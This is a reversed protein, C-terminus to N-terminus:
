VGSEYFFRSRTQKLSALLPSGMERRQISALSRERRTATSIECLMRSLSLVTPNSLDGREQGRSERCVQFHRHELTPCRRVNERCIRRACIRRSQSASAVSLPPPTPLSLSEPLLNMGPAFRPFATRALAVFRINGRKALRPCRRVGDRAWM